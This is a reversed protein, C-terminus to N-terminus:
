KWLQVFETLTRIMVGTAFKGNLYAVRSGTDWATGAIDMHAFPIEKDVFENLFAAATTSGAKRHRTVNQLDAFTGKVDDHHGKNMPLRWINEGSVKSAEELSKALKDNYTFYGTYMDGLAIIMAGTLTAMDVICSPKQESVYSLVDALVLRGEADTNNVEISKGNRAVCVDGPKNANPGPMNECTGIYGTVNVKLGLRAIALLAGITNAAGCMDYKMEEMGASPKISIGGSDFTLGKGVIAVPKEGAKGGKYEIIIMKPEESSGKAVGLFANMKEKKLRAKDWVSVKLKSSKALKVAENALITPTLLNGPLDGLRRAINISDGLNYGAEVGKALNKRKAENSQEFQFEVKKNESKSKLEDFSYSMLEMAEACLQGLQEDDKCLPRHSDYCISAAKVKEAKLKQYAKAFASRISEANIDKDEGFGLFLVSKFTDVKSRVFLAEGAKASFSENKSLDALLAGIHSHKCSTQTKNKNSKVAVVLCELFKADLDKKVSVLM